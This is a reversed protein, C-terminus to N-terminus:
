TSKVLTRVAKIKNTTQPANAPSIGANCATILPACLLTMGGLTITGAGVCGALLAGCGTAVLAALAVAAAGASAYCYWGVSADNSCLATQANDRWAPTEMITMWALIGLSLPSYQDLTTATQSEAVVEDLVAYLPFFQENFVVVEEGEFVPGFFIDEGPENETEEFEVEYSVQAIQTAEIFDARQAAEAVIEQQQTELDSVSEPMMGPKAESVADEVATKMEAAKDAAAKEAEAAAKEAAAKAEAVM